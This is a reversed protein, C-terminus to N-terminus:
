NGRSLSSTVGELIDLSRHQERDFQLKCVRKTMRRRIRRPKDVFYPSRKNVVRAIGQRYSISLSYSRGPDSDRRQRPTRGMAM